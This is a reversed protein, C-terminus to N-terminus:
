SWSIQTPASRMTDAYISFRNKSFTSLKKEIGWVVQDLLFWGDIRYTANTTNVEVNVSQFCDYIASNPTNRMGLADFLTLSNVEWNILLSMVDISWPKWEVVLQLLKVKRFNIAFLISALLLCTHESSHFM